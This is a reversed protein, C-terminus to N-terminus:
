TAARGELKWRGGVDRVSITWQDDPQNVVGNPLHRNAPETLRYHGTLKATAESGTLTLTSWSTVIFESDTVSPSAPNLANTHVLKDYAADIKPVLEPVWAIAIDNHRAAVAAASAAIAARRAMDADLRQSLVDLTMDDTIDARIQSVPSAAISTTTTV